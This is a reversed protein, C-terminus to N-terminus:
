GQRTMWHSQALPSSFGIFERKRNEGNRESPRDGEEMKGEGDRDKEWKGKKEKEKM